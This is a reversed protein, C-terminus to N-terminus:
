AVLKYGVGRITEIISPGKAYDIKKRLNKIHVDLSNSFFSTYNFDWLHNLLEERDIVRNPNRMFYELLAFEKLTLKVPKSNRTVRRESSNLTIGKVELVPTKAEVPRRLLAIIRADLEDFSFPKVLYDDAGERLLQIKTDVEDRATLILLPTNIKQERVEKCITEGDMNPLMLDLIILNYSEHHLKIRELAEKGDSITDVTYGKRGLGRALAAALKVEDEVVLIKM